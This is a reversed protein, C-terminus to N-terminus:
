RGINYTQMVRINSTGAAFHLAGAAVNILTAARAHHNHFQWTNLRDIMFTFGALLAVQRAPQTGLIPNMERINPNQEAKLTTALDFAAGTVHFVRSATFLKSDPERYSYPTGISQATLVEVSLLILILPKM